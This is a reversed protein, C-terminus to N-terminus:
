DGPGSGPCVSPTLAANYGCGVPGSLGTSVHSDRCCRPQTPPTHAPTHSPFYRLHHLLLDSTGRPAGSVGWLSDPSLSHILRIRLTRPAAEHKHVQLGGFSSSIDPAPTCVLMLFIIALTSGCPIYVWVSLNLFAYSSCACPGRQRPAPPGSAQPVPDLTRPHPRALLLACGHPGPPSVQEPACPLAPETEPATHTGPSVM